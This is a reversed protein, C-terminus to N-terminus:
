SSTFRQLGALDRMEEDRAVDEGFRRTTLIVFM